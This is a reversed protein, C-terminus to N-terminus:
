NRLTLMVKLFDGDGPIGSMAYGMVPFSGLAIQSLTTLAGTTVLTTGPGGIVDGASTGPGSIVTHGILAAILADYRVHAVGASQLWFYNDLPVEVPTVGLVIGTIAAASPTAPVVIVSSHPNAHFALKTVTTLIEQVITDDPHLRIVSGAGSTASDPDGVVRYTGMGPSTEITMYGDVYEASSHASTWIVGITASGVPIGPSPATASWDGIVTSPTLNVSHVDNAEQGKACVCVGNALATAGARSYWFVRGDPTVGRTGLTRFKGTTVEKEMGYNLELTSPFAM